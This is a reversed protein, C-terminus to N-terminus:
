CFVAADYRLMTVNERWDNNASAPLGLAEELLWRSFTAGARHALPYGGGFRANIEFVKANGDCDVFAQFCLPGRAGPLVRGLHAAIRELSEVRRTVGKSVEGARVELRQHPVACRFAGNRDFFVNVTYEDGALLEQVVYQAPHTVRLRIAEMSEAKFAGISSSGALPKVFLPFQRAGPNQLFLDLRETWPSPINNAAFFRATAQKDRAIGVLEPSAIVVRAGIEAFRGANAALIELETDITPVLLAIQRGKA